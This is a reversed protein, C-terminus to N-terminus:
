FLEDVTHATKLIRGNESILFFTPIWRVAFREVVPSDWGQYDSDIHKFVSHYEKKFSELAAQQTDLSFGVFRLNKKEDAMKKIQPMESNCDPCWTAFFVLVTQQRDGSSIGNLSPSLKGPQVKEMNEILLKLNRLYVCDSLSPELQSYILKLTFLDLRWSWDNLVFFATVPSAKYDHVYRLISQESAGKAQERMSLYQDNLPSDQVVVEKGTKWFSLHLSDEGVFFTQPDPEDKRVSIGYLVPQEVLGKYQFKGNTFTVSDVLKFTKNRYSYFYVWGNGGDKVEGDVVFTHSKQCSVLGGVIIIVSLIYIFQRVM